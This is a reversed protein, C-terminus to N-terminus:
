LESNNYNTIQDVAINKVKLNIYKLLDDDTNISYIMRIYFVYLESIEIYIIKTLDKVLIECDEDKIYNVKRIMFKRTIYRKIYGEFYANLSAEIAEISIASFLSYKENKLENERINNKPILYNKTIYITCWVFTSLVLMVIIFLIIMNVM